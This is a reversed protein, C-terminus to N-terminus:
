DIRFPNLTRLSPPLEGKVDSHALEMDRQERERMGNLRRRAARAYRRRDLWASLAVASVHIRRAGSSLLYSSYLLALVFLNRGSYGTM